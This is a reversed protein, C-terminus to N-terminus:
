ESVGWDERLVAMFDEALKIDEKLNNITPLRQGEGNKVEYYYRTTITHTLMGQHYAIRVSWGSGLLRFWALSVMKGDKTERYRDIRDAGMERALLRFETHTLKKAM